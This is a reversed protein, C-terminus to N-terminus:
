ASAPIVVGTKKPMVKVYYSSFTFPNQGFKIQASKFFFRVFPPEVRKLGVRRVAFFKVYGDRERVRAAGHVDAV